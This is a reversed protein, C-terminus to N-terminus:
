IPSVSFSLCRGEPGTPSYIVTPLWAKVESRLGGFAIRHSADVFAYGGSTANNGDVKPGGLWYANKGAGLIHKLFDFKLSTTHFAFKDEGLM